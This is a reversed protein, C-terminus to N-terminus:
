LICANILRCVSDQREWQGLFRGHLPELEGCKEEAARRLAARGEAVPGPRVAACCEARLVPNELALGHARGAGPSPFYRGLAREAGEEGEAGLGHVDLVFQLDEARGCEDEELGAAEDLGRLFALFRRATAPSALTAALGPPPPGPPPQLGAPSPAPPSPSPETKSKMQSMLGEKKEKRKSNIVGM